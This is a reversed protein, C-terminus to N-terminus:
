KIEYPIQGRSKIVTEVCISSCYSGDQNEIRFTTMGHYFEVSNDCRTCAFTLTFSTSSILSERQNQAIKSM